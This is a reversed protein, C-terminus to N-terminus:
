GQFGMRQGVQDVGALQAGPRQLLQKVVETFVPTLQPIYRLVPPEITQRGGGGGAGGQGGQGGAKADKAADHKKKHQQMQQQISHTQAPPAASSSAEDGDKTAAGDLPRNQDMSTPSSPGSSMETVADDFGEDEEDSQEDENAMDDVDGVVKALHLNNMVGHVFAADQEKAMDLAGGGGKEQGRAVRRMMREHHAVKLRRHYEVIEDVEALIAAREAGSHPLLVELSVPEPLGERVFNVFLEIWRMLGDFLGAGKSHVQHVFHYFAGEHRGVLDVFTQVM